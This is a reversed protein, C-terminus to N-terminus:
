HAFPISLYSWSAATCFSNTSRSSLATLFKRPHIVLLVKIDEPIKDATLEVQKVNFDRQLESIFAWPKANDQGRQMMMMPNMEGMVPLASMVGVVPKESVMVRAVLRLRRISLREREPQSFRDGQKQDLM